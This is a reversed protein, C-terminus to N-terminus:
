SRTRIMRQVLQRSVDLLRAAGRRNGDTRALAEGLM